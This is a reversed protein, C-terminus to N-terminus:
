PHYEPLTGPLRHRGFMAFAPVPQAAFWELVPRPGARIVWADGETKSVLRAVRNVDFKLDALTKTAFAVHHGREELQYRLEVTHEDHADSEEYLLIRIQLGTKKGTEAAM